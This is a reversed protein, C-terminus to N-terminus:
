AFPTEGTHSILQSKLSNSHSCTYNCQKCAFFKEGTHTPKHNKLHGARNSCLITASSVDSIGKEQVFLHPNRMRLNQPTTHTNNCQSCGFPQTFLLSREQIPSCTNKSTMLKHVHTAPNGERTYSCTYRSAGLRHASSTASNAFLLSRELTFQVM